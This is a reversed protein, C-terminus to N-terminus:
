FFSFSIFFFLLSMSDRELRTHEVLDQKIIESKSLVKLAYLEGDRKFRVKWVKGFGGKGILNLIEFDALTIPPGDSAGPANGM